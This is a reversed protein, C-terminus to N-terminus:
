VQQRGGTLQGRGCLGKFIQTLWFRRQGRYASCVATLTNIEAWGLENVTAKGYAVVLSNLPKVNGRSLKEVTLDGYKVDLHTLGSVVDM